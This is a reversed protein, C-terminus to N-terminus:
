VRKISQNSALSAVPYIVKNTYIIQCKYFDQTHVCGYTNLSCRKSDRKISAEIWGDTWGDTQGDTQRDTRGDTRRDTQRDTGAKHYVGMPKSM